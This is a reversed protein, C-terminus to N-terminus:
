KNIQITEANELINISNEGENFLLDITSMNPIFQEYCQKYTPHVFNQLIVEIGNKQFKSIDLNKSAWIAGSIYTDGNLKRCINLIKESGKGDVNLESSLFTKTKIDLHTKFLEILKLNLELLSNFKNNYIKEIEEKYNKFYQSKSYNSLISKVHKNAWNKTNDIKVQNIKSQQKAIVPVTLTTMGNYTRIKNRNQFEKKEFQVDDFFVFIDCQSMKKCFGLWPLYEPQHIGITVM